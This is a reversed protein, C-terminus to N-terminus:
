IPQRILQVDYILECNGEYIAKIHRNTYQPKDNQHKINNKPYIRQHESFTKTPRVYCNLSKSNPNKTCEFIEHCFICEEEKFHVKNLLSMKKAFLNTSCKTNEKEFVINRLNFCNTFATDYITHLNTGFAITQLEDCGFFSFNGLSRIRDDIKVAIM